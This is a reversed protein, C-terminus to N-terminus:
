GARGCRWVCRSPGPPVHGPSVLRGGRDQGAAQWGGMDLHSGAWVVSADDTTSYTNDEFRNGAENYFWDRDGHEVRLGTPVEGPVIHNHHVYLGTVERTGLHSSGRDETKAMVGGRNGYIANDRVEVDSSSSVHVGAGLDGISRLGNNRILNGEVLAGFSIEVFVGAEDNAEITNGRIVSDANDVDLWLGPGRNDHVWNHQFVLNTTLAFKTAGGEWGWNYGVQRNGSIENYEVVVPAHVGESTDNGGVGLQGNDVIRSHHLHMGPGVRVGAGHAESVTVNAVEWHLGFDGHIAGHQAPSAYRTITLHQITVDRADSRFAFEVVSLEVAAFTAPDNFMVVQDRDYDFFWDGPGDVASRSSVHDGRVGDLFLEHPAAHRENGPLTEGAILGEATQGGIVWRGDQVTFDAPALVAAGSLVAGPEGTFTMGDKPQVSQLRHVGAAIRFHTGAPHGEVARQLDEGVAVLVESGDFEYPAPAQATDAGVAPQTPAPRRSYVGAAAVSPHVVAAVVVLAALCTTAARCILM